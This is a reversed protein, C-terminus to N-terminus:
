ANAYITPRWQTERGIGELCDEEFYQNRALQRGPLRSDHRPAM